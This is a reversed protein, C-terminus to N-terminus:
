AATCADDVQRFGCCMARMRALRGDRQSLRLVGSVVSEPDGAEWSRSPTMGRFDIETESV